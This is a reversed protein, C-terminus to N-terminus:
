IREHAPLTSVQPVGRKTENYGTTMRAPKTFLVDDLLRIHLRIPGSSAVHITSLLFFLGHKGCSLSIDDISM